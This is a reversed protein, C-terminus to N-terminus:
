LMVHWPRSAIILFLTSFSVAVNSYFFHREIKYLATFNKRLARHFFFFILSELPVVFYFVASFHASLGVGILLLICLGHCLASLTMSRQIGFKSPISCLGNKCDFEYDQIAYAIDNGIILFAAVAGLFFVSASFTGTLAAFATVPGLFHIMGLVAHCSYHLRKMYSYMYILFAALLALFTTQLNIQLCLLIFLVLTSWAVVRAQNPTIRGSPIARKQTRPNRADIKCDILQNFAM